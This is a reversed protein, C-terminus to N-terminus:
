LTYGYREVFPALVARARPSFHAEYRRWREIARNHIPETVQHYSPTRIRSGQESRVSRYSGVAPDWALDLFQLTRALMGDFDAVMDEYRLVLTDLQTLAKQREWHAMVAAYTEAASDLTAFSTAGGLLGFDQMYCSLVCDFPHRLLVIVSARPFLRAVYPLRTLYLPYKDVLRQGPGPSLWAGVERWYQARAASVGRADLQGLREVPKIRGIVAELAPREDLSVLSPHSNLINELLTTGSRPFGVVFVPDAPLGDDVPRSWGAPAPQALEDDLWSLTAAETHRGRAQLSRLVGHHAAELASMAESASGKEDHLRAKEFQLMVEVGSGHESQLGREVWELAQEHRKRRRALRAHVLCKLGPDSLEAAPHALQEEAHELRNLRELLLAYEVRARGAQPNAALIREYLDCAARDQDTQALVWALVEQQSPSLLGAQVGQVCRAALEFDELECLCQAYPLVVDPSHPDEAHARALHLRAEAFAGTAQLALGYGLSFEVGSAGLEAAQRYCAVASDPDSLHLYTNGVNIWHEPVEPERGTLEGFVDLAEQARGQAGLSMGLVTQWAPDFGDGLVRRSLEEAARANGISLLDLAQEIDAGNGM